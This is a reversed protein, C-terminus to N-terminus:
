AGGKLESYLRGAEDRTLDALGAKRLGKLFTAIAPAHKPDMQEIASLYDQRQAEDGDDDAASEEACAEAPAVQELAEEVMPASGIVSRLASVAGSSVTRTEVARPPEPEMDDMEERTHLGMTLEPAYTRVFFSAARYMFMQEAMTAWKSGKKGTWGEAEAMQWTVWSGELRDGTSLERAWARCAWSGKGREGGWEFRMASFRGCKNFTAILFQSSWSPRGHVVYLNQMVMLPDAGLRQAMNLAILCNPLQNQFATPVLTSKSFAMAVRQMLAFGQGTFGMSVDDGIEIPAPQQAMMPEIRSPANNTTPPNATTTTTTESM